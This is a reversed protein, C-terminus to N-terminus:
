RRRLDSCNTTVLNFGVIFNLAISILCMILQEIGEATLEREFQKLEPFSNNVLDSM